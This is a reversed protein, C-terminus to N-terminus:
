ESQDAGPLSPVRSVLGGMIPSDFMAVYTWLTSIDDSIYIYVYMNIYMYVYYYIYIYKYIYICLM